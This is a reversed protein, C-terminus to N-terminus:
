WGVWLSHAERISAARVPQALSQVEDHVVLILERTTGISAAIAQNQNVRGGSILAGFGRSPPSFAMIHRRVEAASRNFPRWERPCGQCIEVRRFRV